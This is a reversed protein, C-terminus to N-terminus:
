KDLMFMGVYYMEDKCVDINVMVRKIYKSLYFLM